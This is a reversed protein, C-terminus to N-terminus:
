NAPLWWCPIDTHPASRRMGVDPSKFNVPAPSQSVLTAVRKVGTCEAIVSGSIEVEWDRWDHVRTLFSSHSLEARDPRIDTSEPANKWTEKKESRDWGYGVIGQVSVVSFNAREWGSTNKGHEGKLSGIQPMSSKLGASFLVIVFIVRLPLFFIM